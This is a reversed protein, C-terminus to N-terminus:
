WFPIGKIEKDYILTEYGNLFTFCNKKFFGVCEYKRGQLFGSKQQQKPKHRSVTKTCKLYM